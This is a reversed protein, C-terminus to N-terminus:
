GLLLNTAPPLPGGETSHARSTPKEPVAGAAATGGGFQLCGLSSALHKLDTIWDESGWNSNQGGRQPVSLELVRPSPSLPM